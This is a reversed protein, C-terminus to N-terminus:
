AGASASSQPWRARVGVQQIVPHPALRDFLDRFAIRADAPRDLYGYLRILLLPAAADVFGDEAPSSQRVVDEALVLGADVEGRNGLWLAKAM